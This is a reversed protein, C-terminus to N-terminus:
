FTVTSRRWWNSSCECRRSMPELRMMVDAIEQQTALDPLIVPLKVLTDLFIAPLTTSGRSRIREGPLTLQRSLMDLATVQRLDAWGAHGGGNPLPVEWIWSCTM